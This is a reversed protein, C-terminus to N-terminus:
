DEMTNQSASTPWFNLCKQLKQRDSLLACVSLKEEWASLKHKERRRKLGKLSLLLAACKSKLPVNCIHRVTVPLRANQSKPSEPRHVSRWVLLYEFNLKYWCSNSFSFSITRSTASPPYVCGSFTQLDFVVFWNPSRFSRRGSKHKEIQLNERTTNVGSRLRM